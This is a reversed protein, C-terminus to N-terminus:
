DLIGKPLEMVLLKKKHDVEKILDMHFPIFQRNKSELEVELLPNGPVENIDVVQGRSESSVDIFRFGIYVSLGTEKPAVQTHKDSTLYVECGKYEQVSVDSNYDRLKVIFKNPGTEELFDIFFPVCIGEIKLFIYEKENLVDSFGDNFKIVLNGQYGHPKLVKGAIIYEEKFIM